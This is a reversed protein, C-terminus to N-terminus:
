VKVAWLQMFKDRDSRNVIAEVMRGMEKMDAHSNKWAFSACSRVAAWMTKARIAGVGSQRLLQYLVEDAVSRIVAHTLYLVDHALAPAAFDPCFPQGIIPWVLRPVSAGDYAYGAPIFYEKDDITFSWDAFLIMRDRDASPQCIPQEKYQAKM